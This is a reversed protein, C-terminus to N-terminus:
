VLRVAIKFILLIPNNYCSNKTRIGFQRRVGVGVGVVAGFWFVVAIKQPRLVSLILRIKGFKIKARHFGM